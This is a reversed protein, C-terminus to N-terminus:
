FASQISLKYIDVGYVIVGSFYLKFELLNVVYKIPSPSSEDEQIGPKRQVVDGNPYFIPVKYSLKM